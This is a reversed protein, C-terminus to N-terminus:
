GDNVINLNTKNIKQKVLCMSRMKIFFLCSLFRSPFYELSHRLWSSNEKNFLIARSSASKMNGKKTYKSFSPQAAM